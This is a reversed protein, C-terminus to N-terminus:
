RALEDLGVRLLAAVALAETLRLPRTGAEIRSVSTQAINLRSAVDEQSVGREVRLARLRAGIAADTPVFPGAPTRRGRNVRM